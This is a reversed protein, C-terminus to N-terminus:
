RLYMLGKNTLVYETWEPDDSHLPEVLGNEILADLYGLDITMTREPLGRHALYNEEDNAGEYKYTLLGFPETRPLLRRHAAVMEALLKREEVGLAM